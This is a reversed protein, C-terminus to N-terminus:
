KVAKDLPNNKTDIRLNQDLRPGEIGKQGGYGGKNLVHNRPNRNHNM